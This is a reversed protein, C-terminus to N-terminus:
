DTGVENKVRDQATKIAADITVSGSMVATHLDGLIGQIAATKSSTPNEPLTKHTAFAFKSLEDTPSGKVSFYKDVVTDNLLAPTIGIGALSTAAAESAAYALFAKAATLKAGTVAANIGFGTPDGFTVPVKKTGTTASTLQPAPAIGWEFTDADGSAQQAVLTAVYWSGMPMMAAKQKGFEGQYTLQNANRTNFNIQGGDAQMGLVRQYYPKLYSFNGSLIDAKPSQANAFGQVTSQWSHQYGGVANKAKLAVSLEVETAAYDDWTWTGDPYDIGAADFLAKNYYLVWSDQRYPVAYSKGDIKYADAGGIGAPLKIDSVDVLQNGEKFTSVFKVEKQTIIDPGSGAALDATLLTNYNIPDYEKLEVTVNPNKAHFGDALLQFEPTTAVSWGSLSLTVPGDAKAAPEAAGSSCAALALTAVLAVGAATVFKRKM